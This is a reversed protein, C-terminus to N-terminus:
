PKVKEPFKKVVHEIAYGYGAAGCGVIIAKAKDSFYSHHRWEERAHINAVHLEIFPIEVGLLADRIAVSTHTFGGPNLVIGDTGDTRAEQIKDVIAGEWNSQFFEVNANLTKAQEKQANEVDALTEHGYLQPERTGLLNLNPGNIVLVTKKGDRM